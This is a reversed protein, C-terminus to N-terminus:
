STFTATWRRRLNYMVILAGVGQSSLWAVGAGLIGMQPLLFYSMGLTAIAIFITLGIVGKMRMEVRKIGYYIYNLSLPLASFALIWLLKTANESYARGFLFLIKDGLLLLIIIAPVLLVLLLKLSRRIEYGLREVDHSGEAFLSFSTALPIMFLISAMSWGIYFYANQEAGLLNVVMLPLILQPLMWFINAAYNAFSFHVMENVVGKRIVPLPRYGKEVQPLLLLIATAGAISAAIGLSAFIGFTDFLPALAFLPAFRLLGFILGQALAFGARRKAIFAHYTFGQFTFTVTFFIFAAFFVPHERIPLLAPSWIGLGALFILALAISILGGVTFCSNIMDRAKEGSGPLFRILGYDLGLTSLLTLLGIAAIAASVLGVAEVPYLRAAVVWFFFGALALAASNIMLYIANRYLSVGYLGKLGEKTAFIRAADVVTEKVFSTLRAILV